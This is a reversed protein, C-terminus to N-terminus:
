VSEGVPRRDETLEPYVAQGQEILQRYLKEHAEITFRNDHQQALALSSGGMQAAKNEDSLLAIMGQGLGDVDDPEALFGNIGDHVLEPICSARVAVIPLGSAAAELLVLGQTEIESATIFLHAIRYLEPLGQKTSIFGTFHIRDSLGLSECLKMLTPKRIGDGVILM